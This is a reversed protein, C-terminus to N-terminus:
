YLYPGTDPKTPPIRYVEGLTPYYFKFSDRLQHKQRSRSANWRHANPRDVAPLSTTAVIKMLRKKKKKGTKKGGDRVKRMSPASPDFFKNLSLQKSRGFVYPYVGKWVGEAM